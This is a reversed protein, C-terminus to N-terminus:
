VGIKDLKKKMGTLNEKVKASDFAVFPVFIRPYTEVGLNLLEMATKREEEPSLKGIISRLKLQQM